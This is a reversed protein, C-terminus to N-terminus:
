CRSEEKEDIAGTVDRDERRQAQGGHGLGSRRYSKQLMALMEQHLHRALVGKCVHAGPHIITSGDGRVM